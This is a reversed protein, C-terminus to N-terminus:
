HFDALKDIWLQFYYSWIDDILCATLHQMSYFKFNSTNLYYPHVFARSIVSLTHM